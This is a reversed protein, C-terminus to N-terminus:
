SVAAMAKNPFAIHGGIVAKNHSGQFGHRQKLLDKCEVGAVRGLKGTVDGVPFGRAKLQLLGTKKIDLSSRKFGVKSHLFGM